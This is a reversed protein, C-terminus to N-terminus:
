AMSLSDKSRERALRCAPEYARDIEARALEILQPSYADEFRALLGALENLHHRVARYRADGGPNMKRVLAYLDDDLTALSRQLSLSGRTKRALAGAVKRAIFGAEEMGCGDEVARLAGYFTTLTQRLVAPPRAVRVVQTYGALLRGGMKFGFRLRYSAGIAAAPPLVIKVRLVAARAPALREQVPITKMQGPPVPIPKEGNIELELAKLEGAGSSDIELAAQGASATINTFMMWPLWAEVESSEPAAMNQFNINRQAIKNSRLVNGAVNTLNEELVTFDHEHVLTNTISAVAWLCSHPPFRAPVSGPLWAFEKQEARTFALPLAGGPAAPLLFLAGLGPDALYLNVGMPNEIANKTHLNVYLHNQAASSWDPDQHAAANDANIRNWVDPSEWFPTGAPLGTQTDDSGTDGAYDRLYFDGQPFLYARADGVAPDAPSVLAPLPPNVCNFVRANYLTNYSLNPQMPQMVSNKSSLVYGAGMDVTHHDLNFLHGIEHALLYDNVVTGAAVAAAAEVASRTLFCCSAGGGNICVGGGTSGAISDFGTVSALIDNVFVVGFVNSVGIYDALFNVTDSSNINKYQANNPDNVYAPDVNLAVAAQDSWVSCANRFQTEAATLFTAENMSSFNFFKLTVTHIVEQNFPAGTAAPPVGPAWTAPLAFAAEAPQPSMPRLRNCRVAIEPLSFGRVIGLQPELPEKAELTFILTIGAEDVEGQQVWSLDVPVTEGVKPNVKERQRPDLMALYNLQMPFGSIPGTTEGPRTRELPGVLSIISVPREEALPKEVGGGAAFRMLHEIHFIGNSDAYGTFMVHGWMVSTVLRSSMEIRASRDRFYGIYCGYYSKGDPSSGEQSM